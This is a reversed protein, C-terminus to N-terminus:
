KQYYLSNYARQLSHLIKDVCQRSDVGSCFSDSLVEKLEDQDSERPVHSIQMHTEGAGGEGGCDHQQRSSECITSPNQSTILCKNGFTCFM